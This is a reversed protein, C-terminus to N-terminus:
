VGERAVRMVLVEAEEGYGDASIEHDGVPDTPLEKAVGLLM